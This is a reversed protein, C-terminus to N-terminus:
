LCDILSERDELWTDEISARLMEINTLFPSVALPKVETQCRGGSRGPDGVVMPRKAGVRGIEERGQNRATLENPNPRHPLPRVNAQRDGGRNLRRRTVKGSSAPFPAVGCLHARSRQNHLRDPNDGAAVLLSAATDARSSATRHGTNRVKPPHGQSDNARDFGDVDAHSRFMLYTEVSRPSPSLLASM